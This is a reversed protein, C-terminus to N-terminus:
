TTPRELYSINGNKKIKILNNVLSEIKQEHSVIILQSVNLEDLVTRLRDLQIESFGDTPEDLMIIEKTKIKGLVSNVTQNLALRYALAVATREGGSLFSYEMETENHVMIPSFSEDLRVNLQEEPVLIHFLKSFINSFDQRLKLLINREICDILDMFDSSLWSSLESFSSLKNKSIEKLNITNKLNNIEILTLDSEKKLEAIAIEQNRELKLIEKLEIQKLNYQDEFKSFGLVQSKLIELHKNLVHIDKELDEKIKKTNKLTLKTKELYELRTRLIELNTKRKELNLNEFKEKKLSILIQSARENLSAKANKLEALKNETENLINHKHSESVDQLCTPCIDIRFIREKKKINESTNRELSNIQATLNSHNLNLIELLKVNQSICILTDNYEKESFVEGSELITNNLELIEKNKALLNEHKTELIIRTKDIDKQFYEKEKKKEELNLSEAEIRLKEKIEKELDQKKEEIKEKLKEVLEKKLKIKEKEEDLNKIEGQLVKSDEKIRTLLITLNEKIRKYKDIGLIYRLTNMRTEPDELVIQKMQEQPTYVTYRYLLNNKRILENPYGLERLIQIKIETLSSENKKGDITIASYENTVSKNNRRLKREILIEKGEIELELSVSGSPAKNRLLSSGKQGPQLGFLAYEIALLLTTKGSGIDGSLLVSGEPFIIEENKYSRINNLSIKKIKM